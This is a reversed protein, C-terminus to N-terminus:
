YLLQCSSDSKKKNQTSSYRERKKEETDKVLVWALVCGLAAHEQRAQGMCHLAVDGFLSAPWAHKKLQCVNAVTAHLRSSKEREREREKKKTVAVNAEIRYNLKKERDM